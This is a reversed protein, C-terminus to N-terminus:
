SKIMSSMLVLAYAWHTTMLMVLELEFGTTTLFTRREHPFNWLSPLDGAEEARTMTGTSM